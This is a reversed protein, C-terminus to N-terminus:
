MQEYLNRAYNSIIWVKLQKRKKKGVLHLLFDNLMTAVRDVLVQHCFINKIQSTLLKITQLTKISMFNHFKALMIMHKLNAEIEQRQNNNM